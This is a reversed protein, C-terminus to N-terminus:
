CARPLDWSSEGGGGGWCLVSYTSILPLSVVLQCFGPSTRCTDRFASEAHGKKCQSWICFLARQTLLEHRM